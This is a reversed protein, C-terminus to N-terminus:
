VNHLKFTVCRLHGDTFGVIISLFGPENHVWSLSSPSQNFEFNHTQRQLSLSYVVVTGDLACAALYSRESDFQVDTIDHDHLKPLTLSVSVMNYTLSTLYPNSLM